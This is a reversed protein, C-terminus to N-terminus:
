GYCSRALKGFKEQRLAVSLAKLWTAGDNVDTFGADVRVIETVWKADYQANLLNELATLVANAYEEHDRKIAKWRTEAVEMSHGFKTFLDHLFRIVVEESENAALQTWFDPPCEAYAKPLRELLMLKLLGWNTDKVEQIDEVPLVPRGNNPPEAANSGLLGKLASEILVDVIIDFENKLINTALKRDIEFNNETVKTVFYDNQDYVSWLYDDDYFNKYLLLQIWTQDPNLHWIISFVNGFPAQLIESDNLMSWIASEFSMQSDLSSDLLRPAAMFVPQGLERKFYNNLRFFGQEREGAQWLLKARFFVNPM